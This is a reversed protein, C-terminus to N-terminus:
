QNTGCTSRMRILSKNKSQLDSGCISFSEPLKEAFLLVFPIFAFATILNIHGYYPDTFLHISFTHGISFIMSSNVRKTTKYGYFYSSIGSIFFLGVIMIRVTIIFDGTLAFLVTGIFNPLDEWGNFPLLTVPIGEIYSNLWFTGFPIFGKSIM